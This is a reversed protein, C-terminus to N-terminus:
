KADKSYLQLLAEYKNMTQEILYIIERHTKLIEPNLDERIWISHRSQVLELLELQNEISNMKIETRNSM